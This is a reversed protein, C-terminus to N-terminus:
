KKFKKVINKVRRKKLKKVCLLEPISKKPFNLKKPNKISFQSGAPHQHVVKM